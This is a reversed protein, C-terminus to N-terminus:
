KYKQLLKFIFYVKTVFYKLFLNTFNLNIINLFNCDINRLAKLIEITYKIFFKNESLIFKILYNNAKDFELLVDRM